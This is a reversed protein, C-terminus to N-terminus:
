ALPGGFTLPPLQDRELAARLRGGESVARVMAEPAIRNGGYKSMAEYMILLHFRSPMEPTDADLALTQPGRQFTGRVVYVDDPKPGLVLNGDSDVSFNEPQGNTQAGFKYRQLFTDYEMPWLYYEGGVGTSSLYASFYPFGGKEM